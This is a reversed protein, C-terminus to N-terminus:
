GAPSVLLINNLKEKREPHLLEICDRFNKFNEYKTIWFRLSIMETGDKTKKIQDSRIGSTKIKFSGLISILQLLYDELNYQLNLSKAAKFVIQRCKPSDRFYGEDDFIAGLFASKIKKNGNTIWNPIKTKQLVKSGVPAGNDALYKGVINSYQYRPTGSISTGINLPVNGFIEKVIKQVEIHMQKNSNVYIFYKKNKHINGDAFTHGILRALLVEKNAM